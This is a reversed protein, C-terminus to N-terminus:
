KLYLTTGIVRNVGNFTMYRSGVGNTFKATMCTAIDDIYLPVACFALGAAEGQRWTAGNDNSFYNGAIIFFGIGSYAPSATVGEPLVMDTWTSLDDSIKKGFIYQTDCKFFQTDAAAPFTFDYATFDVGSDTIGALNSSSNEALIHGECSLKLVWNGTYKTPTGAPADLVYWAGETANFQIVAEGLTNIFVNSFASNAWDTIIASWTLGDATIKNGLIVSSGFSTTESVKDAVDVSNRFIAGADTWVAGDSSSYSHYGVDSYTQYAASVMWLIEKAERLALTGYENFSTVYVWSALDSSRWLQASHVDKVSFLFYYYGKFYRVEATQVDAGQPATIEYWHLLDPSFYHWWYDAVPDATHQKLQMYFGSGDSGPVVELREMTVTDSENFTRIGQLTEVTWKSFFGKKDNIYQVVGNQGEVNVAQALQTNDTPDITIGAGTVTNKLETLIKNTDTKAQNIRKTVASFLWNWWKAPITRGVQVGQTWNTGLPEDIATADTAYQNMTEQSLEDIM